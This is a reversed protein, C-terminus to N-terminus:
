VSGWRQRAAEGSTGVAQGIVAWSVGQSRAAAVKDSLQDQLREMEAAVLSLWDLAARQDAGLRAVARPTPPNWVTEAQVVAPAAPAAPVSVTTQTRQQPKRVPRRSAM